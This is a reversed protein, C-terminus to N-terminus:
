LSPYLINVCAKRAWVSECRRHLFLGGHTADSQSRPLLQCNRAIGPLIPKTYQCEHQPTRATAIKCQCIWLLICRPTQPRTEPQVSSKQSCSGGDRQTALPTCFRRRSGGQERLFCPSGGDKLVSAGLPGTGEGVAAWCGCRPACTRPAQQGPAQQGAAKQCPRKGAM